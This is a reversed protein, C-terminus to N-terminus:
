VSEQIELRWYNGSRIRMVFMGRTDDVCWCATRPLLPHLLQGSQLFTTQFKVRYLRMTGVSMTRETPQIYNAPEKNAVVKGDKNREKERINFSVIRADHTWLLDVGEAAPASLAGAGGTATMPKENSSNRSPRRSTFPSSSASSSNVPHHSITQARRIQRLPPSITNDDTSMPAFPSVFPAM